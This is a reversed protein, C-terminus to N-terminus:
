LYSLNVKVADVYSPFDIQHSADKVVKLKANKILKATEECRKKLQPYESGEKKGYFITTPVNLEKAIKRGSRNKIDSLRRKGIYKKIDSTMFKLDESFDPSLSCLYLRKPKVENAILMALVAGYSFGLIYNKEGQYKKFFNLLEVANDSLTKYNWAVPVPVVKYNKTKLFALLWAYNKDTAKEKFGPIIFFTKPTM